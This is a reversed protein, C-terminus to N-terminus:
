SLGNVYQSRPTAHHQPHLAALNRIDMVPRLKGLRPNALTCGCQSQGKLAYEFFCGLKSSCM